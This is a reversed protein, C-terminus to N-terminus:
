SRAVSGDTHDVVVSECGSRTPHSRRCGDTGCRGPDTGLPGPLPPLQRVGAGSARITGDSPRYGVRVGSPGAPRLNEWAVRGIRDFGRLRSGVFSNQGAGVAVTDTGNGVSDSEIEWMIANALFDPIGLDPCHILDEVGVPVSMGMRLGIRSWQIPMMRNAMIPAIMKPSRKGSCLVSSAQTALPRRMCLRHPRHGSHSFIPSCLCRRPRSGPCNLCCVSATGSWAHTPSRASPVSRSM